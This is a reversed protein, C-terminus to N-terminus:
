QMFVRIDARQRLTDVWRRYRDNAKQKRVLTEIDSRDQELTITGAEQKEELRLIHFGFETEVLDSLQGPQLALLADQLAPVLTDEQIWGMLGDEDAEPGDSEERATQAFDAGDRIRELIAEARKRGEQRNEPDRGAAIFIRRAKLRPGHHFQEPHEEYYQRLDDETVVTEQEFQRRKERMFLLATTQKRVEDRLTEVTRGSDALTKLFAEQSPYQCRIAAIRREIQKEPIEIKRGKAERYVLKYEILRDLANRLLTNAQQELETQSLGSDRLSQLEAGAEELVESQLIPECGVAAAVGDVMIASKLACLMSILLVVTGTM